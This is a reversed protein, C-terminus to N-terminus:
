LKMKNNKTQHINRTERERRRSKGGDDGGKLIVVKTELRQYLTFLDTLPSAVHNRIM